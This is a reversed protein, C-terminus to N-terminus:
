LKIDMFIYEKITYYYEYEYKYKCIDTWFNTNTNM